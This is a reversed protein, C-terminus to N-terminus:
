KAADKGDSGKKCALCWADDMGPIEGAEVARLAIWLSGASTVASGRRYSQARQYTGCYDLGRTEAADVRKQLEGILKGVEEFAAKIGQQIADLRKDLGGGKEVHDNWARVMNNLREGVLLNLEERVMSRVEDRAAARITSLEANIREQPTLIGDM